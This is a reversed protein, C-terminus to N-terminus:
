FPAGIALYKTFGGLRLRRFFAVVRRVFRRGGFPNEEHDAHPRAIARLRFPRLRLLEVRLLLLGVTARLRLRRGTRRVARADDSDVPIAVDDPVREVSPADCHEVYARM